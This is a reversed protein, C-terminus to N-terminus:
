TISRTTISSTLTESPGTGVTGTETGALKAFGVAPKEGTSPDGYRFVTYTGKLLSDGFIWAPGQSSDGALTSSSVLAGLCIQQSSTTTSHSTSHSTFNIPAEKLVSAPLTVTASGFTFQPNINTDCPIVWNGELSRDVTEGKVANPIAAYFAEVMDTPGTIITSGSDIIATAEQATPTLTQGNGGTSSPIMISTLPVTWYDQQLLEVFTVDGTFLSTNRGGLTFQGGPAIDDSASSAW